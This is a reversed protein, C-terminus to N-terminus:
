YSSGREGGEKPVNAGKQKMAAENENKVVLGREEKVVNGGGNKVVNGREDKVVNGREEKVVNGREEKVANGGEKKVVNGGVEEMIYKGAESLGMRSSSLEAPITDLEALIQGYESEMRLKEMDLRVIDDILAKRMANSATFKKLYDAKKALLENRRLRQAPSPGNEAAAVAEEYM